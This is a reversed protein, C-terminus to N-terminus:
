EGRPVSQWGAVTARLLATVEAIMPGRADPADLFGCLNVLDLLRIIRRWDPPLIGGHARYGAAFATTFAPSLLDGYRLCIAVDFLPSGAFAFEWDLVAAVNWDTGAGARRVLLNQAKYDGHVLITQTDAAALLVANDRLLRQLALTLEPGLRAGAAGACLAEDVYAPVSDVSPALPQAITLGPGFFGPRAFPFATLGALTAGVAHAASAIAVEDGRALLADLKTGDIWRAILYPRGSREGTPDAYLIAPMPMRAAVLHAIDVETQCAAPDRTFLRLVVPEDSSDLTVKYNTNALGGSLLEATLVSHGPFAPQLLVAISAADLAVPAHRREWGEQMRPRTPSPLDPQDPLTV